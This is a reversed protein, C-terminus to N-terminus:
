YMSTSLETKVRKFSLDIPQENDGSSSKFEFQGGNTTACHEDDEDAGNAEHEDNEDSHHHNNFHNNAHREAAM